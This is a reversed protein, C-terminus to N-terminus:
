KNKTAFVRNGFIDLFNRSSFNTFFMGFNEFIDGFVHTQSIWCIHWTSAVDHGCFRALPVHILLAVYFHKEDPRKIIHCMVHDWWFGIHIRWFIVHYAGDVSKQASKLNPPYKDPRGTQCPHIKWCMRQSTTTDSSLDKNVLNHKQKCDCPQQRTRSKTISRACFISIM